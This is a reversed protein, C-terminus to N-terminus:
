WYRECTRRDEVASQTANKDRWGSHVGVAPRVEVTDIRHCASYGAVEKMKIWL